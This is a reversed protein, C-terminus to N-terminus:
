PTSGYPNGTVVGLEMGVEEYLPYNTPIVQDIYHTSWQTPYYIGHFVMNQTLNTGNYLYDVDTPSLISSYIRADKILGRFGYGSSGPLYGGITLHMNAEDVVAGVQAQAETVTVESGNIYIKPKNSPSNSDRTVVIHSWANLAISDTPTDWDGGTVAASQSFRLKHNLGGDPIYISTGAGSSVPYIGMVFGYRSNYPYIWVSWSRYTLNSAQPLYGYDINDRTSTRWFQVSLPSVSLTPNKAVPSGSVTGVYNHINDIPKTDNTMLTGVELFDFLDNTRACFAQFQLGDPILTPDDVGDNYLTLVEAATLARNYIRTDMMKGNLPRTYEAGSTFINGLYTHYGTEDIPNGVPSVEVTLTKAVGDIYLIPATTPTTLDETITIMHWDLSIGVSDYKWVGSTNDMYREIFVLNGSTHFSMNEKYIIQQGGAFGDWKIRTSFTRQTLNALHPLYGFDIGDTTVGGGFQVALLTLGSLLSFAQKLLFSYMVVGGPKITIEIGDIYYWGETNTQAEKIEILSGIDLYLASMMLKESRNAYFVIKNISQTPNKNFDVVRDMEIKGADLTTQYKQDFTAEQNGYKTQSTDNQAISQVSQTLYIGHGRTNYKTIYAVTSSTNKVTHTFGETGYPASVITLNATLDTGSGDIADNMMYDTTAVPAIMSSSDASIPAGGSPNIYSGKIVITNGPAITIPNNLAFLIQDITDVKRPYATLTSYNILTGGYPADMSVMSRDFSAGIHLDELGIYKGDETMIYKGDETGLVDTVIEPVTDLERLGNRAHCNEFVLTEGNTRDKTLYFRGFESSVIKTIESLAFTRNTVTDEGYPFTYVGTDYDKAAAASPLNGDIITILQDARKNLQIAPNKITYRPLQDFYDVCTVSVFRRNFTGSDPTIGNVYYVFNRSYSGYTLTLKIKTGKDLGCFNSAQPSYKKTTNNLYFSMNGTSAMLTLPNNDSMGWSLNIKQDWVVDSTIDVWASSIYAYIKVTQFIPTM